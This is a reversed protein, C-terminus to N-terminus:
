KIILVDMIIRVMSMDQIVFMRQFMNCYMICSRLKFKESALKSCLEYDHLFLESIM